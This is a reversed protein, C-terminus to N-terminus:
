EAEAAAGTAEAPAAPFWRRTNVQNLATRPIRRALNQEQPVHKMGDLAHDAATRTLANKAAAAIFAPIQLPGHKM